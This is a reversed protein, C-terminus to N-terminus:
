LNLIDADSMRSYDIDRPSRVRQGDKGGRAGAIDVRSEASRQKERRDQNAALITSTWESMVRKVVGPLSQKARGIVLAAVANQHATDFNGARVASRLHKAFDSNAQLAKDLERYIEGVVRNRAAKSVSEPLVRAVQAEIAQLVERVAEANAAQLFEQQAGAADGRNEGPTAESQASAGASHRSNQRETAVDRMAKAFADFADADLKAVLRALQAKDEPDRSFFLADMTRLDAVMHKAALAEEPTAFAERYARAEDWAGQLEPKAEFLERYEEGDSSPDGYEFLAEANRDREGAGESEEWGTPLDALAAGQDSANVKTSRKRVGLELIEDDSLRRNSAGRETEGNRVGGTEGARVQDGLVGAM